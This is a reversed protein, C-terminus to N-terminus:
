EKGVTNLLDRLRENEQQQAKLQTKTLELEASYSDRAKRMLLFAEQKSEYLEKYETSKGFWYLIEKNAKTLKVSSDKEDSKHKSKKEKEILRAKQIEKLRTIPWDREYLTNRHVSALQAINKVTAKLKYDEAVSILAKNLRETIADYDEQNKKDFPQM